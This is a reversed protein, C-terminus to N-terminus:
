LAFFVAHKRLQFRNPHLVEFVNKNTSIVIKLFLFPGTSQEVPGLYTQATEPKRKLVLGSSPYVLM